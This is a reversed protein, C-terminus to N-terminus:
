KILRPDDGRCAMIVIATLPAIVFVFGLFAVCVYAVIVTM